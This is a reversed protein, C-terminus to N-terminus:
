RRSPAASVQPCSRGCPVAPQAPGAAPADPCRVVCGLQAHAAARSMLQRDLDGVVAAETPVTHHGVIMDLDADLDIEDVQAPTRGTRSEYLQGTERRRPQRSERG